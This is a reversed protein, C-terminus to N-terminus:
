RKLTFHGKFEKGNGRSVVFWYDTAPLLRGNLTGDWGIDNGLQKLFKGNRDFISITLGPEFESLSIKWTDNYTDDNPTFYNPYMLLFVDDNVTGCNNKDRVHIKYEGNKLNTFTNSEQYTIGDISYEYAGLGSVHIVISNEQITWDSAIIEIIKAPNSLFVEFDQRTDCVLIGNPTAHNETVIVWYPGDTTVTIAQTTEGTSWLYSDYGSFADIKISKFECLPYRDLMRIVPSDVFTFQLQTVEYCGFSSIVRVYVANNSNSLPCSTINTLQSSFSDTQAGLLTTYYKYTYTTANSILHSNYSTLDVNESGDNFADCLTTAYDTPVPVPRYSSYVTVYEAYSVCNLGKRVKLRYTTGTTLNLATPDTTWTTGGDFSYFDGPTTITISAYVGCGADNLEYDPYSNEFRYLYVYVNSSTCGQANKIKILYSGTSLNALTNSTQWTMGGDFSYQSAPTTITISGPMGCYPNEKIYDPDALFEGNLVASNSNSICGFTDKVRILHTGSPM